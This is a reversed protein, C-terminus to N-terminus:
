QPLLVHNIGHLVGNLGHVDPLIVDAEVGASDIVLVGDVSNKIVLISKGSVRTVYANGSQFEENSFVDQLMHSQVIENIEARTYFSSFEQFNNYDNSNVFLENFAQDTPAFISFSENEQRMITELSSGALKISQRYYSFRPDMSLLDLVSPLFLTHNLEHVLLRSSSEHSKLIIALDNIVAQNANSNLYFKAKHGYKNSALSRYFQNEFQSAKLSGDHMHYELVLKALDMGLLNIWANLDSSGIANLYAQFSSDNPLFMTYTSGKLEDDLGTKKIAKVFLDFGELNELEELLDPEPNESSEKKCSNFILLLAWACILLLGSSHSKYLKM